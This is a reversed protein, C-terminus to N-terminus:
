LAAAAAEAAHAPKGRPVIDRREARPSMAVPQRGPRAEAAGLGDVYLALAMLQRVALGADMREIVRGLPYKGVREPPAGLNFCAVPVNLRMLETTVYSYTEPWVSPVWFVHIREREILKGLNQTTYPGLVRLRDSKAARGLRGLVVIEANLKRRAILRAARVVMAAGKADGISGAVGIRVPENPRIPFVKLKRRPAWSLRHPRVVMSAGLDPYAKRLVERSAESFHVIRDAARLLRGWSHRWAEIPLRRADAAAFPNEPL